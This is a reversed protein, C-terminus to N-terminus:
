KAVPQHMMYKEILSAINEPPMKEILRIHKGNESPTWTNAGDEKVSVTGREISYYPEYGKIAVLVATQDWSMRGNPDGEAFSLSYADKVPSNEVPMQVLIKGTLVRDGIEWGSFIIETPWENIVVISAPADCFVNFERGQPFHAAMSVLHKVKKRILEKGSLSSYEDAGSFLLDKLNTFFGVTSIVVSGDPQESLIRRYVKVADPAVSTKETQHRYKEPLFETWKTHHWTTMSVGGESKPAGVPIAPRNFYTNIVEICPIVREDKNSSITALINVQGSDALAHMLAMAGVDDYDPGMDTDLILNVIERKGSTNNVCAALLFLLLILLSCKKM